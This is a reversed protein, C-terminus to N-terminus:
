GEGHGPQWGRPLRRRRAGREPPEGGSTIRVAEAVIALVIACLPVFLVVVETDVSRDLFGLARMGTGSHVAWALALGLALAFVIGARVPAPWFRPDFPM